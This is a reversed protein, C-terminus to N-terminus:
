ATTVCPKFTISTEKREGPSGSSEINTVLAGTLVTDADADAWSLTLLAEIDNVALAPSMAGEITFTVEVEPIGPEFLHQVDSLNTVDIPNGNESASISILNTQIGSSPTLTTGTATFAM